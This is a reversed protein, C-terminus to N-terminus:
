QPTVPGPEIVKTKAARIVDEKTLRGDKGSGKIPPDLGHELVARRVAPSMTIPENSNHENIDDTQGMSTMNEKAKKQPDSSHNM